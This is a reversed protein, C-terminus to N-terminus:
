LTLKKESIKEEYFVSEFMKSVKNELILKDQFIWYFLSSPFLNIKENDNKKSKKDVNKKPFKEIKYLSNEFM